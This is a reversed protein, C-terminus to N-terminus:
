LPEPWRPHLGVLIRALRADSANVFSSGLGDVSTYSRVPLQEAFAAPVFGALFCLLAM